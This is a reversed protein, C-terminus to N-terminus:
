PRHEVVPFLPQPISSPFDFRFGPATKNLKRNYPYDAFVYFHTILCVHYLRRHDKLEQLQQKLATVRTKMEKEREVYFTEIKDLESDLKDFFAKQVTTLAPLLEMM